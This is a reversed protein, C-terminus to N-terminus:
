QGSKHVNSNAKGWRRFAEAAAALGGLVQFLGVGFSYLAIVVILITVTSV